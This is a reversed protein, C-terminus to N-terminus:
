EIKQDSADRLIQLNHRAEEHDPDLELVHEYAAEAVALFSMEDSQQEFKFYHEVSADELYLRGALVGLNYFADLCEDDLDTAEQFLRLAEEDNGADAAQIGQEVLEMADPQSM